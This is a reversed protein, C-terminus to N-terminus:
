NSCYCFGIWPKEIVKLISRYKQDIETFGLNTRLTRYAESVLAKPREHTILEYERKSNKKAM